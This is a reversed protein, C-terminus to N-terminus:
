DTARKQSKKWKRKKKKKTITRKPSKIALIKITKPSKTTAPEKVSPEVL